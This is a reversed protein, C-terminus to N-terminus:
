SRRRGRWALYDAALRPPAKALWADELLETLAATEAAELRVLVAAFGDFHEITFCVDPHAALVAEKEGLDEVALALIDGTPM